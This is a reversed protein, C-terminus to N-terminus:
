NHLHEGFPVLILCKSLMWDQYPDNSRHYSVPSAAYPRLFSFSSHWSLGQLSLLTESCGQAKTSDGLIAKCACFSCEGFASYSFNWLVGIDSLTQSWSLELVMDSCLSVWSCWAMHSFLTCVCFSGHLCGWLPTGITPFRPRMHLSLVLWDAICTLFRPPSGELRFWAKLLPLGLWCRSQSRM